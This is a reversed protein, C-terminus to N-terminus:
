KTLSKFRNEIKSLIQQESNAKPKKSPTTHPPTLPRRPGPRQAPKGPAIGPGPNPSPTPTPKPNNENMHDTTYKALMSVVINAFESLTIKHEQQLEKFSTKIKLIVEDKINNEEPEALNEQIVQKIIRKISNSLKKNM